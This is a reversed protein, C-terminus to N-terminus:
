DSEELDASNLVRFNLMSLGAIFDHRDCHGVWNTTLSRTSSIAVYALGQVRGSKADTVMQELIEVLEANCEGNAFVAGERLGVVNGMMPARSKAM